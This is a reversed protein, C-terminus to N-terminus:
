KVIGKLRAESDIMFTAASAIREGAKLGAVIEIMGGAKIGTTVTRPEFNGEGKDVYVIQRRGSDLVSDEPVLLKRGLNIKVEVNTYM